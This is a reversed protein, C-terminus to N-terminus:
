TARRAAVLDTVQVQGIEGCSFVEAEVKFIVLDGSFECKEVNGRGFHHFLHFIFKEQLSIVGKHSPSM